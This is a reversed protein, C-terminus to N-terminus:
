QLSVAVPTTKGYPSATTTTGDGLQGYYNGGWCYVTGGSTLACTTSGANTIAIANTIGIAQVPIHSDTTSNNGLQGSGNYGWCWVAGGSVIACTTYQGSSIATANINVAVPNLRQTTTNDGLQGHNNYGWCEVGGYSLLACSHFCGAAAFSGVAKVNVPLGSGNTHVDDSVVISVAEAKYLTMAGNTSGSVNAIGNAFTIATAAGFNTATGSSNTM